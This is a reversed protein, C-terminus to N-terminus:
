PIYKSANQWHLLVKVLWPKQNDGRAWLISEFYPVVHQICPCEDDRMKLCEPHSWVSSVQDYVAIVVLLINLMTPSRSRGLKPNARSTRAAYRATVAKREHLLVSRGTATVHM